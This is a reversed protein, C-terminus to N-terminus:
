GDVVVEGTELLARPLLRPRLTPNPYDWAGLVEVDDGHDAVIVMTVPVRIKLGAPLPGSPIAM